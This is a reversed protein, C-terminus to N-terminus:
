DGFVESFVRLTQPYKFGDIHAEYYDFLTKILFKKERSDFTIEQCSDLESRAFRKILGAIPDPQKESSIIKGAGIDFQVKAREGSQDLPFFGLFRTLHLLYFIFFHILRRPAQDLSLIVSRLFGYLQPNSEEEKVTDYFIELMALGISMKVPETQTEKLHVSLNSETIKQLGRNEKHLFVIEVISLPQFYSHRRRSRGSRYARIIFSRVGYERTYITTILNDDQHKLTRLVIGETKCLM